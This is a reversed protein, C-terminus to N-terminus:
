RSREKERQALLAECERKQQDIEALTQEIDQRQSELVQRHKGLVGLYHQLQPITDGPGDYMDLLSCIEALPLGLRKGRLALKLRARDRAYYVRALGERGPKVIGQDEYFRLTRPTVSFEDALESITWTSTPM